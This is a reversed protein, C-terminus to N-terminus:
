PDPRAALRSVRPGDALFISEFTSALLGLCEEPGLPDMPHIVRLEPAAYNLARIMWVARRIRPDVHKREEKASVSPGFSEWTLLPRGKPDQALLQLLLTTGTRPLGVVFLPKRIQLSPIEPHRKVEDQIMLRNACLRVCRGRGAWRGVYSLREDYQYDDLLVRLPERFSEDGWDKLGTMRRAAKLVSEETFNPNPAGCRHLFGAFRQRGKFDAASKIQDKVRSAVSITLHPSDEILLVACAPQDNGIGYVVRQYWCIEADMTGDNLLETSYFDDPRYNMVNVLDFELGEQAVYGLGEALAPVLHGIGPMPALRIKIKAQGASAAPASFAGALLALATLRLLSKM